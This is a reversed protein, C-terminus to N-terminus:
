SRATVAIQELHAAMAEYVTEARFSREFLRRANRSLRQRLLPSTLLTSIATRFAESDDSPVVLGCEERRILRGVVSLPPVSIIPLAFRLYEIPKNNISALFDPRDPVVNLAAYSQQLLHHLATRGVWGPLFVNSRGAARSRLLELRAGAGCLVFRAPPGTRRVQEAVKLILDLDHSYGFTGAFALIPPEQPGFGIGKSVWFRVADRTEDATLDEDPYGFPFARDSTSRQRRGRRLGWEVFEDTIGVVATARNLARAALRNYPLAAVRALPRLVPTVSLPLVDPWWDRVDIVVPVNRGRAYRVAADCFEITPLASVILDPPADAQAMRLFEAAISRHERLRGISIHGKYGTSPLVVVEVGSPSRRRRDGPEIFSRDSHMFRSTWWTVQHGRRQLAGALLTM